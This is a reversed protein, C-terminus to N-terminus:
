KRGKKIINADDFLKKREKLAEREAENRKNEVLRDHENFLQKAEVQKNLEILKNALDSNNNKGIIIQQQLEEYEQQLADTNDM